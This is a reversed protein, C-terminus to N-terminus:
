KKTMAERYAGAVAPGAVYMNFSIRRVISDGAFRKKLEGLDIGKRAQELSDGRAAATAVQQRISTFLDILQRVYADDRMVPGHGPILIKPKLALLAELTAPWDSVYSQPDGVLPVPWVVLDGTAVISEKPLYVVLDGATHGRGLRRIEIVRDGRYLTLRDEVTITPLVTEAQAGEALVLDILRLDSAYSAREEETIDAGTLSKNKAMQERMQDRFGPAGELFGKRNAAGQNPLYERSFASGIFDVGPFADRYVQNGRIHDDHYHTNIVYRVPKDTLRRLAALVEKTISPAGNSDVVIVDRDNIILLNNADVMLGPLDKRIVGYVGEALKRIEFNRAPGPSEQSFTGPLTLLAILLLFSRNM